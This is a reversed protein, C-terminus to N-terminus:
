KPEGKDAVRPSQLLKAVLAVEDHLFALTAEADVARRQSAATHADALDLLTKRVAALAELARNWEAISAPSLAPSVDSEKLMVLTEVRDLQARRSARNVELFAANSEKQVAYLGKRFSSLSVPAPTACGAAALLVGALWLRFPGGRIM